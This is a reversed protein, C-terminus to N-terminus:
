KTEIINTSRDNHLQNITHIAACAFLGATETRLRSKGLSVPIFGNAIATEIEERSFDGEPGILVLANKGPVYEEVFERREIEKDCYAIFKQGKFDASLVDGIPTLEDLEPLRTKLSQKMASVLIKRLRDTKLQKRESYRCLIPIIRAIGMETVKEALWEIRDINKTPAIALTINGAEPIPETSKECIEVSCGKKGAEAIRCVFLNGKGDVVEISEGETLRLVRTCHCSEEEPLCNDQEIDPAYFRHM